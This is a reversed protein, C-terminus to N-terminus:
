EQNVSTTQQGAPRKAKHNLTRAYLLFAGARNIEKVAAARWQKPWPFPQGHRRVQVGRAFLEPLLAPFRLRIWELM